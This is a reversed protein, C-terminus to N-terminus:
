RAGWLLLRRILRYVTIWLRPVRRGSREYRYSLCEWADDLSYPRV